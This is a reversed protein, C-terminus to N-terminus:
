DQSLDVRVTLAAASLGAGFGALLAKGNRRTEALLLPISCGGPNAWHGDSMVLKEGSLGLERALRRVMYLNAQHPVLYDYQGEFPKLLDVVQEAVFSFVGFGDMRIPGAAPCALAESARSFTAFLSHNAGNEACEVITATAADSFLPATAPDSFDTLRSQIDGHIVLVKKHLDAALRGALYIAYPYASCAMQLDFAPADAPLGLASAVRIALAPFREPSSFTAAIVAGIEACNVQRAARLALELLTTEEKVQRRARFGTTEAIRPFEANSLVNEGLEGAVACITIEPVSIM